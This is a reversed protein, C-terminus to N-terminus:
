EGASSSMAKVKIEGTESEDAASKVSELRVWIFVRVKGVLEMVHPQVPYLSKFSQPKFTAM